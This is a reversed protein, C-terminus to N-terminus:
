DGLCRECYIEGPITGALNCCICVGIPSKTHHRAHAVTQNLYNCEPCLSETVSLVSNKCGFSSCIKKQRRAIRLRNLFAEYLTYSDKRYADKLWNFEFRVMRKLHSMLETKKSLGLPEIRLRSELLEFARGIRGVFVFRDDVRVTCSSWVSQLILTRLPELVLGKQRGKPM